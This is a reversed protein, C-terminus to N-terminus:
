IIHRYHAHREFPDISHATGDHINVDHSFLLRNGIEISEM